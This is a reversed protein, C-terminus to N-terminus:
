GNYYEIQKDKEPVKVLRGCRPCSFIEGNPYLYELYTMDMKCKDCKIM